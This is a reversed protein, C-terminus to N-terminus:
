LVVFECKCKDLAIFMEHLSAASVAKVRNQYSSGLDRGLSNRYLINQLQAATNESAAGISSLVTAKARSLTLPSVDQAALRNVTSRVADLVEAPRAPRLGAPLGSAPVPQCNVYITVKEAPLLETDATVSFRYGKDALTRTLEKELAACAVRVTMNADATFPWLASLSMTVGKERWDGPTFTTSWCERLPYNLRPRAIRQQGKPFGGLMQSLYKLTVAENLDGMLVIISNQTNAGKSAMYRSVREAFDPGPTGPNSGAAYAYGPCMTSDMIARTGADTYRDRRARLPAEKLYRSYAENDAYTSGALTLMAKIVMALKGSPATGTFRVDSMTVEPKFSIGNMRLLDQWREGDLTTVKELALVDSVMVSEAATIGPIETWGGKVMYGYHFSGKEATKRFFVTMGNTFTWMKCSSYPDTSTTRVKVKRTSSRLMITDTWSPIDAIVTSGNKWGESFLARVSDPRPRTTSRVHVHLNRNPALTAAIYRNLLERERGIDLRRNSFISGLTVESALNSGYLYAAIFKDIYEPNSLRTNDDDRATTETFVSRAFSVEETTAGDNDLASLVGATTLIAADLSEPATEVTIAFTEDGSTQDSGTYRFTCGALPIGAATFAARMRKRLVIDFESALLRSMVPQITNMMEPDTRPSRYILRISGIPGTATTVIASDQPMWSYSFANDDVTRPAVTISLVRLRELVASVNLDGSIMLAQRYKSSRTLDMLMLLTTDYVSSESIPIDNFRLVTADRLHQIYGYRGYSVGCDALFRYPKRGNFNPLSELDARPGSRDPRSPQVLAFDAFGPLSKNDVIYYSVGNPLAGTVIESAKGLTPLGQAALPLALPLLISALILQKLKM